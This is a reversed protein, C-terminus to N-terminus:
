LIEKNKLIQLNHPSVREKVRSLSLKHERDEKWRSKRPTDQSLSMLKILSQLSDVKAKGTKERIKTKEKVSKQEQRIIEKRRRLIYNKRQLFKKNHFSLDSIKVREKKELISM